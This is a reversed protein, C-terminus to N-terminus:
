VRDRRARRTCLTPPGLSRGDPLAAGRNITLAHASPQPGDPPRSRWVVICTPLATPPGGDALALATIRERQVEPSLTKADTIASKRVYGYAVM